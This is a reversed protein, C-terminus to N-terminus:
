ERLANAKFLYIHINNVDKKILSNAVQIVENWKNENYFIKLSNLLSNLNNMDTDKV